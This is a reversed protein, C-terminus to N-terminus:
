ILNEIEINKIKRDANIIFHFRQEEVINTQLQGLNNKLFFQVEGFDYPLLEVYTLEITILSDAELPDDPSFFLPNEGLYETIRPSTAVPSGPNGSGPLTPDQENASVDAVKWQGNVFWRLNIPNANSNLPFGFKFGTIVDKTNKFVQTTKIIAIQNNVEVQVDSSILTFLSETSADVICIGNSFGSSIFLMVVFFTSYFPKIKM